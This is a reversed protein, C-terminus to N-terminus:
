FKQCEIVHSKIHHTIRLKTTNALFLYAWTSFQDLLSYRIKATQQPSFGINGTKYIKYIFVKMTSACVQQM